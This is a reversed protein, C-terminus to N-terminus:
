IKMLQVALVRVAVISCGTGLESANEVPNLNVNRSNIFIFTHMYKFLPHSEGLTSDIALLM